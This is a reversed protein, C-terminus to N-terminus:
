AVVGIDGTVYWVDPGAKYLKVEGWQKTLDGSGDVIGNLTVGSAVGVTSVGAGTQILRIETGLPFDITVDDPITTTNALANDRTVIRGRDTLLLDYTIDTQENFTWNYKAEGTVDLTTGDWTFNNDGGITGDGTWVGVQNNTTVGVKSLNIEYLYYTNFQGSYFIQAISTYPNPCITILSEEGGNETVGNLTVSTAAIIEMPQNEIKYFTAVLRPSSELSSDVPVTWRVPGLAGLNTIFRNNDLSNLERSTADNMVRNNDIRINATTGSFLVEFGDGTTVSLSKAAIGAPSGGLKVPIKTIGINSIVDVPIGDLKAGDGSVNRGNVTGSVSINGVVSLSSGDWLLNGNTSSIVNSASFVAIENPAPGGAATLLAVDTFTIETWKANNTANDVCIFAKDITENVWVDGIRFEGNGNTNAGDDTSLPSTTRGTIKFMASDAINDMQTRLDNAGIDGTVNDAFLNGTIQKFQTSTVQAM